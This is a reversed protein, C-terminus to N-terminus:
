TRPKNKLGTKTLKWDISGQGRNLKLAIERYKLGKWYLDALQQFEEPTWQRKRDLVKTPRLKNYKRTTIARAPRGPLMDLLKAISFGLALGETLTQDQSSTWALNRRRPMVLRSVPNKM